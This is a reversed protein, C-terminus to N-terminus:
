REGTKRRSTWGGIGVASGSQAKYARVQIFRLNAMGDRLREGKERRENRCSEAAAAAKWITVSGMSAAAARLGNELSPTMISELSFGSPGQWDARSAMESMM